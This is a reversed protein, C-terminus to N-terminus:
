RLGTALYLESLHGQYGYVIKSGDASLYLRLTDPEISAPDPYPADRWYTRRGTAFDIRFIQAPVPGSNLVWLSAGDDTRAIPRDGRVAGAVPFPASRDIPYRTPLQSKRDYAIAAKSDPTVVVPGDVGEETLPAPPAGDLKQTFVRRRKGAESGVFVLQEGGPLFSAFTSGSAVTGAELERGTGAGTPVLQLRPFGPGGVVVWRGDPSIAIPDGKGLLIPASADTHRIYAGAGSSSLGEVFLMTRGDNSLFRPRSSDRLSLDREAPSNADVFAMTNRHSDHLVLVRGDPAIDAIRVSGMTRHVIREKGDMSLAHISARPVASESATFWVERGDPTWAISDIASGPWNQSRRVVTGSRDIISLWVEGGGARLQELVAVHAGDPSVRLRNLATIQQEHLSKGLPYEIWSRPGEGRIVALSEDPAWDADLVKDRLERLGSGGIPVTALVDDNVVLALAGSKSVSRLVGAVPLRTSEVSDLRTSSTEFSRGDWSATSIVTQGDPAFRATDVHGRRFTLQKFAPQAPDEAPHWTFAAAGATLVVAALVAGGVVWRRGLAPQVALPSASTSTGSLKQLAFALDRASQFRRDPEKELCHQIVQALAPSVSGGKDSLDPPDHKLIASLMEVASDAAFARTGSVMEYLMAGFSFIDSRHDAPQGRVQEPSMYGATGLIVNATTQPTPLTATADLVRASPERLKALGFDLIKVRGDTTVFVNEPKIDRHVIGKDHAAALGNAVAVAHEIATRTVLAGHGLAERLTKGQLLESVIYPAGEHTGIDHVALINPHNLAAAARAEQEFRRLRDADASFGPPLVKIAVDRALRTDHACYVEGMGGSGLLSTIRYPGLMAGSNLAM